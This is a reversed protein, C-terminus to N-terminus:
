DAAYGCAYWYTKKGTNMGYFQGSSATRRNSLISSVENVYRHTASTNDNSSAEDQSGVLFYSTADDFPIYFSFAATTTTGGQEVWGDSWKRYWSNGEHWAETVAHMVGGGTCSTLFM